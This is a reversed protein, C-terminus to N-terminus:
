DKRLWNNWYMEDIREWYSSGEPSEGKHFDLVLFEINGRIDEERLRRYSYDLYDKFNTCNSDKVRSCPYTFLNKEYSKFWNKTTFWEYIQEKTKTVSM